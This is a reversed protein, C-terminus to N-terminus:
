RNSQMSLVNKKPVIMEKLNISRETKEFLHEIISCLFEAADHQNNDDYTRMHQMAEFCKVQVAARLDSTSHKEYVSLNLLKSFEMYILNKSGFNRKNENISKTICPINLFVTAISNSFCLNKRSPNESRLIFHFENREIRSVKKTTPNENDENVLKMSSDKQKDNQYERRREEQVINDIDITDKTIKKKM